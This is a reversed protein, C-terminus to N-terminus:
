EAIVYRKSPRGGSPGAPPRDLTLQGTAVLADLAKEAVNVRPFLRRLNQVLERATVSGGRREIHELLERDGRQADTESLETAMTRAQVGFWRMLQIAGEVAWLDIRSKEDVERGEEAERALFLLLALRAATATHKNWMSALIGDLEITERKQEDHFAIFRAQAADDLELFRTCVAATDQGDLLRQFTAYVSSRVEDSVHVDTWLAALKPPRAMLFRAAFGNESHEGSIVRRLIRPQIGGTVSVSAVPICITGASKRDVILSDGDYMSLWQGVEAGKAGSYRDFGKVWGSVEDRALLLGNPQESLLKAVAEITVDNMIWRPCPPLEPEIPPDGDGGSKAWEDVRELHAARLAKRAAENAAFGEMARSQAAQLPALALKIAPSKASGSEGVLLTWLIAPETWGPKLRIRWGAGISTALASLMPMAVFSVDCGISTAGDSAYRRLSEPLVQAPFPEFSARQPTGVPPGQVESRAVLADFRKKLALLDGGEAELADVLDAGKPLDPWERSLDVMCVTAAGAEFACSRGVLGYKAGSDDQDPCIVVRKGQMPAWDTKRAAQAGGASTTTAHGLAWGVGAAKEGEVVYVTPSEAIEPLRYLPPSEMGRIVWGSERRSVPLFIKGDGENWRLVHGVDKGAADQYVWHGAPQGRSAVLRAIAEEATSFERDRRRASLSVERPARGSHTKYTGRSRHVGMLGAATLVDEFLCGAFCKLLLGGSRDENVSLSPTGDEHAPCQCMWGTAQRRVRLGMAKLRDLLEGASTM